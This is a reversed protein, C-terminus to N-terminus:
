SSSRPVFAIVPLPARFTDSVFEVEGWFPGEVGPAPTIEVTMMLDRDRRRTAGKRATFLDSRSEIAIIPDEGRVGKVPVEVRAVGDADVAGVNVRTEVFFWPREKERRHLQHGRHRVPVEMVPTEPHDTEILWFRPVMEGQANLGTAKDYDRVDWDVVHMQLPPTNKPEGNVSLISFRRGEPADVRLRGISRYVDDSGGYQYTTIDRPSVRLGRIIEGKVPIKIPPRGAVEVKMSSDKSTPTLGATMTAPIAVSEGPGLLMPQLDLKTCSCGRASGPLRIPLAERNTLTVTRTTVANPRLYGYDYAPPDLTVEVDVEALAADLSGADALSAPTKATPSPAPASEPTAPTSRDASVAQPPAPQPGRAADDLSIDLGVAVLVLILVAAVILQIM